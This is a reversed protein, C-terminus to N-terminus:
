VLFAAQGAGGSGGRYLWAAGDRFLAGIGADYEGGDPVADYKFVIRCVFSDSTYCIGADSDTGFRGTKFIGAFVRQIIHFDM